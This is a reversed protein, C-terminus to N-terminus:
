GLAGRGRVAPEGPPMFFVDDAVYSMFAELDNTRLAQHFAATSAEFGARDSVASEAVAAPPAANCGAMSVLALAVACLCRNM